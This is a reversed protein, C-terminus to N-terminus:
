KDAITRLLFQRVRTRMEEPVDDYSLSRTARVTSHYTALFARCDACGQLHNDFLRKTESQLDDNLYDIIIDTVQQCTLREISSQTNPNFQDQPM